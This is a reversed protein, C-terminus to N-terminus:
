RVGSPPWADVSVFGDQSLRHDGVDMRYAVLRGGSVASYDLCAINDTVISPAGSLWYHGIFLPKEKSSYYFLKDRDHTSLRNDALQEPLPDPQFIVDNYTEANKAWFHARFSHRVFGDRGEWSVGEPLQLNVGCTLRRIVRLALPDGDLYAELVDRNLCHTKFHDLYRDIFMQDWCAHVVRFNDFELFLPLNSFWQLHDEFLTPEDEFQELTERIQRDSRENHPRLFGGEVPTHYAIANFEHNGLVMQADGSLCSARVMSVVEAIQPGRDILDGVFVLQRPNDADAYRFGLGSREYGLKVLLRILADACGHVDGVIDYGAFDRSENQENLTTSEFMDTLSNTAGGWNIVVSVM